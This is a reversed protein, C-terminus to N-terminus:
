CIERWNEITSPWTCRYASARGGMPDGLLKLKTSRANCRWGPGCGFVCLIIPIMHIKCWIHERIMRSLKIMMGFWNWANEVQEFFDYSGVDDDFLPVWISAMKEHAITKSTKNLLLMCICVLVKDSYPCVVFMNRNFNLNGITLFVSLRQGLGGMPDGLLKQIDLPRRVTWRTWVGFVGLITSIM